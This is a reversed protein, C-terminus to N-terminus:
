QSATSDKLPPAQHATKLDFQSPSPRKFSITDWIREKGREKCGPKHHLHNKEEMDEWWSACSTSRVLPVFGCPWDIM